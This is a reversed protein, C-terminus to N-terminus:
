HQNNLWVMYLDVDQITALIEVNGSIGYSTKNIRTIRLDYNIVKSHEILSGVRVFDVENWGFIQIVQGILIFIIFINQQFQM